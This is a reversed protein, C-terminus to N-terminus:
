KLNLILVDKKDKIILKSTGFMLQEFLECTSSDGPQKIFKATKTKITEIEKKREVLGKPKGTADEGM